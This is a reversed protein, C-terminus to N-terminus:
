NVCVYEWTGVSMCACASACACPRSAKWCLGGPLSGRQLSTSDPLRTLIMPAARCHYCNGSGVSPLRIWLSFSVPRAGRRAEQWSRSVWGLTPLHCVRQGRLGHWRRELSALMKVFSLLVALLHSTPILKRQSPWTCSHAKPQSTNNNKGKQMISLFFFLFSLPVNKGPATKNKGEGGKM